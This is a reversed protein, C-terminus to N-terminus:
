AGFGYSHMLARNTLYPGHTIAVDEGPVPLLFGFSAQHLSPFSSFKDQPFGHGIHAGAKFQTNSTAQGKFSLLPSFSSPIGVQTFSGAHASVWLTNPDSSVCTLGESPLELSHTM